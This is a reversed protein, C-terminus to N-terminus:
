AEKCSKNVTHLQVAMDLITLVLNVDDDGGRFGVLEFVRLSPLAKPKYEIQDEAESHDYIYIDGWSAPELPELGELVRAQIKFECLMPCAGVLRTISPLDVMLEPTHSLELFKLNSFCPLGKAPINCIVCDKPNPIIYMLFCLVFKSLQSAFGAIQQCIPVKAVVCGGHLTVEVLSSPFSKFQITLRGAYDLYSLNVADIELEELPVCYLISLQKLKFSAVKLRELTRSGKVFLRELLRCELLVFELLEGSVDVGSLHLCTLFNNGSELLSPKLDPKVPNSLPLELELNKVRKSLAFKVWRSINIDCVQREHFVLRARFKNISHGRHMKIIQNVWDLYKMTENPNLHEYNSCEPIIKLHDFDLDPWNNWLYRWRKSLISTRAAEKMELQFLINLVIDDPLESIRDDGELDDMEKLPLIAMNNANTVLDSCDVSVM